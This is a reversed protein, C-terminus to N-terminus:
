INDTRLAEIINEKRMKRSSYIMTIFVVAYVAIISVIISFWPLRFIFEIGNGFGQNILYCILVGLPIGFLLAKSGYFICELNLMRNFQKDTMGISKLNAFERRRLNINTSITNFINSIGIASILAIFGYLFIEIVTKLNKQILIDESVNNINMEVSNCESQIEKLQNNVNSINNADIYIRISQLYNINEFVKLEEFYKESVIAYFGLNYNQELGMPAKETLKAIKMTTTKEIVNEEGNSYEILNLEDGEKYKVINAEIGRTTLWNVKNIIIAENDELNSVGIEKAYRNFEEENLVVPFVYMKYTNKDENYYYERDYEDEDIVKKVNKDLKDAPIETMMYLSQVSSIRDADYISMTQNYIQNLEEEAKQNRGYLSVSFDYDVTTYMSDFGTYMYGVFGSISVYLVISVVLSIVTTRYRKKARKLNKLAITGEMGFLKYIFKPTKLKKAKTKVDDAQRIADIPTIKSARRAPLVVSMYITFAILVVAIIIAPWSVVLQLDWSYSDFVPKLLENVIELTIGIGGIGCLIGIPIGIAGLIAGEYIVSKRIQKRTAGVSSLMGFQKKRESVSIAFSNYIVMISGGMIVAILVGCVSYLMENFGSTDNVGMYALLGTNYAINYVKGGDSQVNIVAGIYDGLEETVKYIEKPNKTIVGVNLNADDTLTSRDMITIGATYFDESSEFYPRSIIGTITYTKTGTKVFELNDTINTAKAMYIEENEELYGVNLTIKDGISPENDKGDFFSQSLAIEDSNTPMEGKIIKEGLKEIADEDYQEIRLYEENSYENQAMYLTSTAFTDKFQNNTEIYKLDSYSVEKFIAEWSGSADKEYGILFNQFSVALTTVASIMAGSLIIGIITVLTRKKNLKLYNWTIKNLINM